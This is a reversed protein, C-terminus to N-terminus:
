LSKLNYCVYLIFDSCLAFDTRTLECTFCCYCSGGLFILTLENAVDDNRFSATLSDTALLGSNNLLIFHPGLPRCSIIQLKLM